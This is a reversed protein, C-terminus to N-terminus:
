HYAVPTFSQRDLTTNGQLVSVVQGSHVGSRERHCSCYAGALRQGEIPYASSFPHVIFEVKIIHFHYCLLKSLITMRMFIKYWKKSSYSGNSCNYTNNTVTTIIYKFLIFNWCLNNFTNLFLLEMVDKEWQLGSTFKKQGVWIQTM